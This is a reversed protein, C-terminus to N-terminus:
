SGRCPTCSPCAWPCRRGWPTPAGLAPDEAPLPRAHRRLLALPRRRGALRAHGRPVPGRRVRRPGRLERRADAPGGRGDQRAARRPPGHGDRGAPHGRARRPVRRRLGRRGLFSWIARASCTAPRPRLVFALIRAAVGAPDAQLDEYEVRLAPWGTANASRRLRAYALATGCAHDAFDRKSVVQARTRDEARGKSAAARSAVLGDVRCGPATANLQGNTICKSKRGGSRAATAAKALKSVVRKAVNGREFVVVRAAVGAGVRAWDPEVLSHAGDPDVPSHTFGVVLETGDGDAACAGRLADDLARRRRDEGALVAIALKRVRQTNACDLKHVPRALALVAFREVVLEVEAATWNQRVLNPKIPVEAIAVGPLRNLTATLWTSGTRSTKFILLGRPHAAAALGLSAM